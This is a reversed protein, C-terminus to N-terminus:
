VGTTDIADSGATEGQEGVKPEDEARGDADVMIADEGAQDPKIETEAQAKVEADKIGGEEKEDDEKKAAEEEGEREQVVDGADSRLRKSDGNELEDEPSKRKMGLGQSLISAQERHEFKIEEGESDSGSEHGEARRGVAAEVDIGHMGYGQPTHSAVGAPHHQPGMDEMGIEDPGRAHPVEEEEGEADNKISPLHVVPVVGAKQEQRLLEGQTVGGEARLSVVERIGPDTIGNTVASATASSIGNVSVSVTEISGMGHPGEITETSETKVEREVSDSHNSLASRPTNSGASSAAKLWPIPTLLAGGLSEDSGPLSARPVSSM